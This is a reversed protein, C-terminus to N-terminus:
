LDVHEVHVKELHTRDIHISTSGGLVEEECAGKLVQLGLM